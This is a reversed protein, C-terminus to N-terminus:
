HKKFAIIDGSKAQWCGVGRYACGFCSGECFKMTDPDFDKEDLIITTEPFNFPNSMEVGAGGSYLMHLNEPIAAAASGGNKAVFRNVTEFNKTFCLFETKPNKRCVDVMRDFYDANVIDGSVHFRFYRVARAALDIEAFYRDPSKLFIATNRAYSKLVSPRVNALKVAYCIKGCTGYCSSPCTILPLTSVSTVEGMKSNSHPISVSGILDPTERTANLEEKLAASFKNIIKLSAYGAKKGTAIEHINELHKESVHNVVSPNKSLM